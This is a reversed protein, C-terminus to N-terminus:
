RQPRGALGFSILLLAGLLILGPLLLAGPLLLWAPLLSLGPPLTSSALNLWGQNQCFLLLGPAALLHLLRCPLYYRLSLDCDALVGAIQCHVSLGGWALIMAAALLKASLPASCAALTDIGLTMEFCGDALAPLVTEPLGLLHCLPTLLLQLLRMLGLSRLTLLLLSFILMFAGIMGITSLSQLSSNKLLLGLPQPQNQPGFAAQWGQQFLQRASLPMEPNASTPKGKAAPLFRLLLGWLLNLPYHALVLWLGIAPQQLAATVTLLIYLPGANNCFAVLRNGENRSVLGQQRLNAAIAGGTPSGAFFGLCIGLAAAGPLRFLPQMIPALWVSFARILGTRSFFDTLIFFPLLAPVVYRWWSNMANQVAALAQAPQTLITIFIALALLIRFFNKM